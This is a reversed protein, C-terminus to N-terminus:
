VAFAHMAFYIMAAIMPLGIGFRFVLAIANGIATHGPQCPQAYHRQASAIFGATLAGGFLLIATTAFPQSTSHTGATLWAVALLAPVLFFNAIFQRM